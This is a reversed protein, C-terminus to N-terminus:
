YGPLQPRDKRFSASLEQVPSSLILDSRFTEGRRLLNRNEWFLTAGPGIDTAYSLGGGITRRRREEVRVLIDTRGSEDPIKPAVEVSSFLGTSGLRERYDDIDDRSAVQGEEFPRFQRIYDPDTRSAGTVEIDGYTSRPGSRVEFLASAQVDEFDARVERNTVEAALYGADWLHALLEGEIRKLEEGTPNGGTEIGAEEFTAPRPTSVPEAYAIEYGGISFKEGREIRFRVVVETGDREVEPIVRAAYYGLSQLAALLAEADSNAARRIPALASYGEPERELASVAGIEKRLKDSVGEFTVRVDLGGQAFASGVLFLPALVSTIRVSSM